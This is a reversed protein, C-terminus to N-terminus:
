SQWRSRDEIVTPSQSFEEFSVNTYHVNGKEVFFRRYRAKEWRVEDTSKRDHHNVIFVEPTQGRKREVRKLLYRVHVDADPFSYGCFVLRRARLCDREASDWIRRLQLNSLVKFFTPPIVIPSRPTECQECITEHPEWKLKLVGKQRPTIQIDRCTSCLLWNLSGHLKYLPVARDNPRRYQNVFEVGYDIRREGVVDLLANDILIDYNFTMFATHELEDSDELSKVLADHTSRDYELKEHLIEAISFVLVDHIHWLQSTGNKILHPGLLDRFSEGQSDAIELIGLIEEFTPFEVDDLDGDDVNIGFFQYFFTALERDWEHTSEYPGKARCHKFFERFLHAQIPAGDAASAGAGLVVMTDISSTRGRNV